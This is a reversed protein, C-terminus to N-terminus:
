SRMRMLCVLLANCCWFRVVFSQVVASQLSVAVCGCLLNVFAFQELLVQWCCLCFNGDLVDPDKRGQFGGSLCGASGTFALM